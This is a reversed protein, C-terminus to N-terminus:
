LRELEPWSLQRLADGQKRQAASRAQQERKRQVFHAAAAGALLGLPVLYQGVSALTRFWEGTAMDGIQGPAAQTSASAIAYSHLAGYATVALALNLGWPLIHALEFPGQLVNDDKRKAM